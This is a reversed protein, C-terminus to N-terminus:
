QVPFCSTVAFDSDQTLIIRSSDNEVNALFSAVDEVGLVGFITNLFITRRTILIFEATVTPSAIIVIAQPIFPASDNTIASISQHIGNTTTDSLFSVSSLLRLGTQNCTDAVTDVTYADMWDTQHFLAILEISKNYRLYQIMAIAEDAWSARLNIIQKTFPFRLDHAGSIPAVISVNRSSTFMRAAGIANSGTLGVFAVIGQDMLESASEVATMNPSSPIQLSVNTACFGGASNFEDFATMIGIRVQSAVHPDMVGDNFYGFKIHGCVMTILMMITSLKARIM